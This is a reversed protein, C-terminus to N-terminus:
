DVDMEEIDLEDGGTMTTDASGCRPCCPPFPSDHEFSDGCGGCRHTLPRERIILEAGDAVTGRKLHEFAFCLADASVNRNRGIRLTVANVRGYGERLCIGEVTEIVSMCLAAEHM